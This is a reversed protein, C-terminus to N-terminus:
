QESTNQIDIDSLESNKGIDLTNGYARRCIFEWLPRFGIYLM